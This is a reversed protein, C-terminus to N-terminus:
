QADYEGACVLGVVEFGLPLLLIHVDLVGRRCHGVLVEGDETDEAVGDDGLNLVATDGLVGFADAGKVKAVIGHSVLLGDVVEGYAAVLGADVGDGEAVGGVVGGDAELVFQGIGADLECAIPFALFQM